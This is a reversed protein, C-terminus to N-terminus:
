HGIAPPVTVITTTTGTGNILGKLTYAGIAANIPDNVTAVLTRLYNLFKTSEVAQANSVYIVDKNRMEFKSTLFYGGPDRLSVNYIIPIIPGEFRSTDVGLLGAVHRTEGRYIFVAAADASADSLGEAKAMAESLSIHWAEFPFQGQRDSAGFALFTQPERFVYITDGPRV